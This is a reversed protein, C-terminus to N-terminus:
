PAGCQASVAVVMPTLDDEVKGISVRSEHVADAVITYIRRDRTFLEPTNSFDRLGGALLDTELVGGVINLANNQRDAVNKLSDHLGKVLADDEARGTSAFRQKDDLLGQVIALNHAMSTVSRDLRIRALELPGAGQSAMKRYTEETEGILEDTKMLGAVAPAVSDRVTACLKSVSHTRGIEPLPLPSTQPENPAAFAAGSPASFCLVFAFVGFRM